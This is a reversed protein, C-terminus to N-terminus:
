EVWVISNGTNYENNEWLKNGPDLIWKGDAIFKYRHKGPALYLAFIWDDGERRMPLSRPNWNNFDGALFVSRLEPKNRLRFTFNAGLVLVSNGKGSGETSLPNAPDTVGQGDVFFKYEYNGPGLAYSLEWGSPGRQLELENKNWGNFTGAVTVRRANPYGPLSFAFGKGLRLVSNVGKHGDPLGRPNAPDAIWNGDVIFKYTHTGESLFVPLYWGDAYRQLRLENNRWDNFSGALMVQRADTYGALHFLHNVVFFVSNINGRGDSENQLNDNDTQWNGDVIFKYWYKGPPLKVSAVWGSDTRRMGLAGAEWNTFSGALRVRSAGTQGRLFFLVVSDQVSFPRKNRFRNIGYRRPAPRDAASTLKLRDAPDFLKESLLPKRLVALKADNQEVIWGKRRLSDSNGRRQFNELDLDQLEFLQIFSRLEAPPATKDLVIYMCGDRVDFQHRGQALLGGLPLLALLLLLLARKPRNTYLARMLAM